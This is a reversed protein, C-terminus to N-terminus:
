SEVKNLTKSEIITMYFNKVLPVGSADGGVWRLCDEKGIIIAGSDILATKFLKWEKELAGTLGLERSGLWNFTSSQDVIPPCIQALKEVNKLQLENLLIPSLYSSNGMGLIRDKGLAIQTGNGPIWYLGHTILHIAKILGSWIKSVGLNM